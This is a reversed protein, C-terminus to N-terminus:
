LDCKRAGTDRDHRQTIYVHRLSFFQDSNLGDTKILEILKAMRTKQLVGRMHVFEHSPM